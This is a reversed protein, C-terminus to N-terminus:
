PFRTTQLVFIDQIIADKAAQSFAPDDPPPKCL